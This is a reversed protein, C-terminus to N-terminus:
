EKIRKKKEEAAGLGAAQLVAQGTAGGGGRGVQQGLQRLEQGAQDGAVVGVLGVEQGGALGAELLRDVRAVGGEAHQGAHRLQGVDAAEARQGEPAVRLGAEPGDGADAVVQLVLQPAGGVHGEPAEERCGVGVAEGDGAPAALGGLVM